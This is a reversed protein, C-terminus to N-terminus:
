GEEGFIMGEVPRSRRRPCEPHDEECVGMEASYERIQARWNGAFRAVAPQGSTLLESPRGVDYSEGGSILVVHDAINHISPLDHSVVVSTVKYRENMEDILDSVVETMHPDLGTTPEDYLLIKPRYILSRALAVRRQMGGSLEEPLKDADGALGLEGLLDMVAPRVKRWPQKDVFHPYFAVNQCVTLSDFLASHQFVMGMKRRVRVWAKERIHTVDEGDVYLRGQGPRLFGMILRLATSKGSGSPGMIATVQQPPCRFSVGKLVEEEGFKLHVGKFEIM